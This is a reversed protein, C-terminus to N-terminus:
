GRSALRGKVGILVMEGGIAELEKKIRIFYGLASSTVFTLDRVNVAVYRDGAERLKEVRQAFGRLSESDLEGVLFFESFVPQLSEGHV